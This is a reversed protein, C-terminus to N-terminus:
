RLAAHTEFSFLYAGQGCGGGGSSGWWVMLLAFFM